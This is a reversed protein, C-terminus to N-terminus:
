SSPYQRLVWHIAVRVGDKGKDLASYQRTPPFRDKGLIIPTATNNSSIITINSPSDIETISLVTNDSHFEGVVGSLSILDGLAVQNLITKSSTFISIGNSVRIDEGRPEQIWFGSTGKATVVGPLFLITWCRRRLSKEFCYVVKYVTLERDLFLRYFDIARSTRM